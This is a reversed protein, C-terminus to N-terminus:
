VIMKEEERKKESERMAATFIPIIKKCIHACDDGDCASLASGRSAYKLPDAYRRSLVGM